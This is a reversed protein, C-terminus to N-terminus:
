LISGELLGLDLFPPDFNKTSKCFHFVYSKSYEITLSFQELLFSIISYIYLLNANSKEFIKKQSIFLSNNVFFFLPFLFVLYFIRLKKNFFIFFLLSISLWFFLPFLLNKAWVSMQGLLLLFMITGSM